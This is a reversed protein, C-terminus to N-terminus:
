CFLSIYNFAFLNLITHNLAYLPYFLFLVVRMPPMFGPFVYGFIFSNERTSDICKIKQYAVRSITEM